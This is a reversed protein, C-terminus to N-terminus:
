DDKSICQLNWLVSLGYTNRNCLAILLMGSLKFRQIQVCSDWIEHREQFTSWNLGFNKILAIVSSGHGVANSLKSSIQEFASSLTPSCGNQSSLLCKQFILPLTSLFSQKVRFSAINCIFSPCNFLLHKFPQPLCCGIFPLSPASRQFIWTKRWSKKFGSANQIGLLVVCATPVNLQLEKHVANLFQLQRQIVELNDPRTVTDCNCILHTVVLFPLPCFIRSDGVVMEALLLYVGKSITTTSSRSHSLLLLM